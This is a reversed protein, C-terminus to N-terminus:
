RIRLSPVAGGTRKSNTNIEEKKTDIVELRGEDFWMADNEKSNKDFKPTLGYSIDGSISISKAIITGQFDTIKDKALVGFDFLAEDIDDYMNCQNTEQLEEFIGNDLVKTTPVDFWKGESDKNILEIRDCGTIFIGRTKLIGEFGTVIDKCKYGFQLKNM